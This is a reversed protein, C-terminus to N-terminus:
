QPLWVDVAGSCNNSRIWKGFPIDDVTGNGASFRIQITGGNGNWGDVTAAFACDSYDLVWSVGAPLPQIYDLGPVLSANYTTATPRGTSPDLQWSFRIAPSGVCCGDDEDLGTATIGDSRLEVLFGGGGGTIQVTDRSSSTPTSAFSYTRGRNSTPDTTPFFTISLNASGGGLKEVVRDDVYDWGSDGMGMTYFPVPSSTVWTGRSSVSAEGICITTDSPIPTPVLNNDCCCTGSLIVGNRIPYRGWM